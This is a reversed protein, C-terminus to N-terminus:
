SDDFKLKNPFFFIDGYNLKMPAISFNFNLDGERVHGDSVFIMSCRVSLYKLWDGVNVQLRVGYILNSAYTRADEQLLFYKLTRGVLM